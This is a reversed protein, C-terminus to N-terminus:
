FLLACILTVLGIILHTASSSTKSSGTTTTTASGTSTETASGTSATTSLDADTIPMDYSEGVSSKDAGAEALVEQIGEVLRKRKGSGGSNDTYGVQCVVNVTFTFKSNPPLGKGSVAEAALDILKKSIDFKFGAKEKYPSDIKIIEFAIGAEVSAQTISNKYLTLATQQVNNMDKVIFHVETIKTFQFKILDDERNLNPSGNLDSDLVVQFFATAGVVFSTREVGFDSSQYVKIKITLAVDVEITACFDESTISYEVATNLNGTLPCDTPNSGTSCMKTYNLSYKGNLTCTRDNLTLLSNWRQKCSAGQTSTCDTKGLTHESFKSSGDSNRPLLGIFEQNLKYPWQVVTIIEIRAPTKRDIEVIQKTIAASVGADNYITTSTEVNLFRQFRVQVRLVSQIIRFEDPILFLSELHQM